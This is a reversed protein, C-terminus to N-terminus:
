PPQRKQTSGEEAIMGMKVTWLIASRYPDSEVNEYYGLFKNKIGM